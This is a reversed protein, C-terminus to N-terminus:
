DNSWTTKQCKANTNAEFNAVATCGQNYEHIFTPSDSSAIGVEDLFQCLGLVECSFDTLARYEAECSSLLVVPQKKTQWSVLHNNFLSLYGLQQVIAGTPM